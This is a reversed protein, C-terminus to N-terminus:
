TLLPPPPTRFIRCCKVAIPSEQTIPQTSLLLACGVSVKLGAPQISDDARGPIHQCPRQLHPPLPPSLRRSRPASNQYAATFTKTYQHPSAVHSYPLFTLNYPQMLPCSARPEPMSLTRNCDSFLMPIPLLSTCICPSIFRESRNIWRVLVFPRLSTRTCTGDM